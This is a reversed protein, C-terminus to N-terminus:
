RGPQALLDVLDDLLKTKTMVYREEEPLTMSIDRWGFWTWHHAVKHVPDAHPLFYTAVAHGAEHYAFVTRDEETLVRNEKAPGMLVRDIAEEIDSMLIRKRERGLPWFQRNM